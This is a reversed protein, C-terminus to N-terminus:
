TALVQNLNMKESTKTRAVFQARQPATLDQAARAAAASLLKSTKAVGLTSSARSLCYPYASWFIDFEPDGLLAIGELTALARTVLAFYEPVRFPMEFFIDSLDDTIAQFNKKRRKIDGGSLMGQEVVRQMAPLVQEKNYETPLFGLAVFDDLLAAYDGNILHVCATAHHHLNFKLDEIEAVLGFDILVLMDQSVLLNGPHPDSHFIGLDLLQALFCEIGVPCLAKVVEPSCDAMRPGDIWETVLVRRRTLDTQVYPVYVKGPFLRLLNERFREQNKAEAEYDLEGWSGRAWTDVLAVHDTKNKSIQRVVLTVIKALHRIIHIDLAIAHAM